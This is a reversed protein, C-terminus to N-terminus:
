YKQSTILEQLAVLFIAAWQATMNYSNHKKQFQVPIYCANILETDKTVFDECVYRSNDM